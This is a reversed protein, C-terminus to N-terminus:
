TGNRSVMSILSDLLAPSTRTSSICHFFQLLVFLFLHTTAHHQIETITMPLTSVM